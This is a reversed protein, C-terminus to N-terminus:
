KYRKADIVYAMEERELDKKFHRNKPNAKYAFKDDFYVYAIHKDKAIFIYTMAAVSAEEQVKAFGTDISPWIQPFSYLDFDCMSYNPEFRKTLDQEIQAVQLRNM